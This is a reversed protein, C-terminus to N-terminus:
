NEFMKIGTKNTKTSVNAQGTVFSQNQIFRINYNKHTHSSYILFLCFLQMNFQLKLM